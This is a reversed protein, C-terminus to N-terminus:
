ATEDESTASADNENEDAEAMERAPMVDSELGEEAAKTDDEAEDPVEAEDEDGDAAEDVHEALAAVNAKALSEDVEAQVQEETPADEKKVPERRTRSGEVSGESSGKITGSKEAVNIKWDTLRAALRVNQGGKGIALSLQDADVIVTAVHSKEDLEVSEVKAPALSNMVFVGADEDYEIIDVKEGSLEAIITQIRAGRQGICAGIPDISDDDCAVAVKSRSGPERAIAEIRVTGDAI